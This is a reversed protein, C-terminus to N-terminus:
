EADEGRAIMARVASIGATTLKYKKRAQRTRGSKAVQRVLAPKRGQLAGLLTPLALEM